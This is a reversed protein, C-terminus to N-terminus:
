LSLRNVSVVGFPDLMEHRLPETVFIPRHQSIFYMQFAGTTVRAGDSQMTLSLFACGLLVAEAEHRDCCYIDIFLLSDKRVSSKKFILKAKINIEIAYRIYQFTSLLILIFIQRPLLEM